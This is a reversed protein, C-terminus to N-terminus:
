LQKARFITLAYGSKTASSHLPYGNDTFIVDSLHTNSLFGGEINTIKGSNIRASLQQSFYQALSVQQQIGAGGIPYGLQKFINPYRNAFEIAIQYGSLFPKGFHHNPNYYNEGMLIGRIKGELGYQDWLSVNM